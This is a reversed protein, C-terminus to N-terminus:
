EPLGAERLESIFQNLFEVDRFPQGDAFTSLSFSPDIALIEQAIDRAAKRQGRKVEISTLILRSAIDQLNAKTVAQAVRSAQGFDGIARCISAFIQKFFPPHVPSYRMALDIHHLAKEHEGCYHLVNAYFGNAHTCNPRNSVAAAGAALAVDFNRELLHIHSLVTQAQGDADAPAAGREAWEKALQKSKEGSESWGRQFDYWHTLAVWTPGIAAEPHLRSVTEFFRRANGLSIQDMNFFEHIGRYLAELSPLDPLTKHWIKAPEGAVLKVNLATLVRATIDDLLTFADELERDFQEAWIIDSFAADTLTVSIRLRNGARRVNGELAYRVGLGGTAEKASKGRYANANGAAILFVGSVKVLANQIDIRLGDCLYDQEVEGTMNELPLIVISPREARTTENSGAVVAHKGSGGLTYVRVPVTVHKVKHEGLDEFKAEIRNRVQEYVGGSVSIGGPEALAEIRAAINVGEGHIDTGDDVVDGLNVGMRFDLPSDSLGAQMAIACEVADQVTPFEALFGDGTHKVIRGTHAAINPNIVETKATTWAAVTGNTDREVLKTYGAIDAILVATLRRNLGAASM